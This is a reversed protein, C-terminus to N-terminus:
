LWRSRNISDHMNLYGPPYASSHASMLGQPLMVPRLLDEPPRQLYASSYIPPPCPPPNANIFAQAALGFPPTSGQTLFQFSPNSVPQSSTVKDTVGSEAFYRTSRLNDFYQQYENKLPNPSSFNFASGPIIGNHKLEPPTASSPASVQSNGLYHSYITSSPSVTQTTESIETNQVAAAKRRKSKKGSKNTATTTVIGSATSMATLSVPSGAAPDVVHPINRNHYAVDYRNNDANVVMMNNVMTHKTSGVNTMNSLTQSFNVAPRSANVNSSLFEISRGQGDALYNTDIHRKNSSQITTTSYYQKDDNSTSYNSYRLDSVPYNSPPLSKSGNFYDSSANSFSSTTAANSRYNNHKLDIINAHYVNETTASLATREYKKNSDCMDVVSSSPHSSSVTMSAYHQLSSELKGRQYDNEHKRESENGHQQTYFSHQSTNGNKSSYNLAGDSQTVYKPPHHYQTTYVDNVKSTLPLASATTATFDLPVASQGYTSTMLPSSQRPPSYHPQNHSVKENAYVSEAPTQQMFLTSMHSTTQGTGSVTPSSTYMDKRFYPNSSLLINEPYADVFSHPHHHHSLSIPISPEPSGYPNSQLIHQPMCNSTPVFHHEQEQNSGVSIFSSRETRVKETEQQETANYQGRITQELEASIRKKVPYISFPSKELSGNSSQPMTQYLEKSYSKYSSSIQPSTPVALQQNPNAVNVTATPSYVPSKSFPVPSHISDSFNDRPSVSAYRPSVVANRPSSVHLGSVPDRPSAIPDARPSAIIDRPSSVSDRPSAISDRPSFMLHQPSISNMPERPSCSNSKDSGGKPFMDQYFGVKLAGTNHIPSQHYPQPSQYVSDDLSPHPSNMPDNPDQSFSSRESVSSGTSLKRQRKMPKVDPSPLSLIARQDKDEDYMFFRGPTPPPLENIDYRDDESVSKLRSKNPCVTTGFDDKIDEYQSPTTPNDNFVASEAKRKPQQQTKPAGFAKFWASLNPTPKDTKETNSKLGDTSVSTNTETKTNSSELANKEEIKKDETSMYLSDAYPKDLALNEAQLENHTAVLDENESFPDEDESPISDNDSFTHKKANTDLNIIDTSLVTGLSLITEPRATNEAKSASEKIKIPGPLEDNLNQKNGVTKTITSILNGKSKGPQLRDITRPNDRRRQKIIQM